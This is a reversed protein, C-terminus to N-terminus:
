GVTTYRFSPQPQLSPKDPYRRVGEAIAIISSAASDDRARHRRGGQSAKALKENGAPDSVTMAESFAARLLLSPLPAVEDDLIAKRFGRVDESGDRFGQGRMVLASQPFRVADLAARLDNERYRDAVVAAPRGWEKLVRRLLLGVDVARGPTTFLEGREACKVYLKGVGDRLGRESLSPIAPFAAMAELRGTARWYGSAAVMAAGDSLDLGLIFPGAREVTTSEASEWVGADLVHNRNVPSTGMNLRLARFGALQAPNKKARRAEAAIESLLSPMGEKLSPCAKVWSKKQFDPDVDKVCMHAQIYDAEGGLMDNFFHDQGELPRTGLVIMRSGPIKGMSTRLTSYVEEAINTNIQSPEDLLILRPAIGHIRKPESGICRLVQGTKRHEILSQTACQGM